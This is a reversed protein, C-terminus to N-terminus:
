AAKGAFIREQTLAYRIFDDKDRITGADLMKEAAADSRFMQVKRTDQPKASYRVELPNEPRHLGPKRSYNYAFAVAWCNEQMDVYVTGLLQQNNHRILVEDEFKEIQKQTDAQPKIGFIKAMNKVEIPNHGMIPHESRQVATVHHGQGLAPIEQATM